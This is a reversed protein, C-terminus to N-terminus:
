LQRIIIQVILKLFSTYHKGAKPLWVLFTYAYYIIFIVSVVFLIFMNGIIQNAVIPIKKPM